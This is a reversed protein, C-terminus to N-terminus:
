SLATDENKLALMLATLLVLGLIHIWCLHMVQCQCRPYFYIGAVLEVGKKVMSLLAKNWGKGLQLSIPREKINMFQIEKKKDDCPVSMPFFFSSTLHNSRSAALCHIFLMWSEAFVNSKFSSWIYTLGRHSVRASLIVPVSNWLVLIWSGQSLQQCCCSIYRQDKQQSLTNHLTWVGLTGAPCQCCWFGAEGKEQNGWRQCLWCCAPFCFAQLPLLLRPSM